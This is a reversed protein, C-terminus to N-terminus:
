EKSFNYEKQFYQHDKDRKMKDTLLKFLILTYQNFKKNSIKKNLKYNAVYKIIIMSIINYIYIIFYSGIENM